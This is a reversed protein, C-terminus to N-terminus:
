RENVANDFVHMGIGHFNVQCSEFLTYFKGNFFEEYYKTLVNYRFLSALCELEGPIIM